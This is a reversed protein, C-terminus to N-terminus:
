ALHCSALWRLFPFWDGSFRRESQWTRPRVISSRTDHRLRGPNSESVFPRLVEPHTMLDRVIKERLIPEYDDRDELKKKYRTDSHIFYDDLKKSVLGGDFEPWLGPEKERLIPLAYAYAAYDDWRYGLGEAYDGLGCFIPHWVLHSQRRYGSFPTGGNQVVEAETREYLEDLARTSLTSSLFFGALLTGALAIRFRLSLATLFLYAAAVAAGALVPETRVQKILGLLIGSVLALVLHRWTLREIKGDLAFANIGMMLITTSIPWSFINENRYTEYLQFSSSGILATSVTAFFEHGRWFLASFYVGLAFIFFLSSARVYGWNKDSFFSDFWLLYMKGRDGMRYTDHVEMALGDSTLPYLGTRKFAEAFERFGALHHGGGGVTGRISYTDTLLERNAYISSQWLLLLALLTLGLLSKRRKRMNM